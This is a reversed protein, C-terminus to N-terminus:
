FLYSITDSLVKKFTINDTSNEDIEDIITEDEEADMTSQRCINETVNIETDETNSSSIEM